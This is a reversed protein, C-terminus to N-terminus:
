LFVATCVWGKSFLLFEFIRYRTCLIEFIENRVLFVNHYINLKRNHYQSGPIHLCVNYVTFSWITFHIELETICISMFMYIKYQLYLWKSVFICKWERKVYKKTWIMTSTSFVLFCLSFTVKVIYWYSWVTKGEYIKDANKKLIVCNKCYRTWPLMSFLNGSCRDLLTYTQSFM